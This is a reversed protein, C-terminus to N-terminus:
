PRFIGFIRKKQRIWRALGLLWFLIWLVFIELCVQVLNATELAHVDMVLAEARGRKKVELSITRLSRAQGSGLSAEDGSEEVGNGAFLSDPGCHWFVQVSLATEAVDISEEGDLEGLLVPLTWDTLFREYRPFIEDLTVATVEDGM